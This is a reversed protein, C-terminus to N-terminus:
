VVKSHERLIREIAKKLNLVQRVSLYFIVRGQEDERYFIGREIEKLGWAKINEKWISSKVSLLIPRATNSLYIKFDIHARDEKSYPTTKLYSSIKGKNKLEKLTSGVKEEARKGALKINRWKNEKGVIERWKKRRKKV